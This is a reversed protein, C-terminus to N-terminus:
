SEEDLTASRRDTRTSQDQANGQCASFPWAQWHGQPLGGAHSGASFSSPLQVSLADPAEPLLEYRRLTLSSADGGLRQHCAQALLATADFFVAPLRTIGASISTEPSQINVTGNVGLDSSADIVSGPSIFLADTAIRINGGSGARARAIIASGGELFTLIPDIRINGGNGKGDAVSTSIRSSSQLHLVEGVQFEMDGANATSSAVSIESHDVLRLDGTALLSIQGAAGAGKSESSIRSHDRLETHQSRLTVNGAAGSANESALAFVGSAGHM